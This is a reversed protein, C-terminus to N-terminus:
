SSWKTQIKNKLQDIRKLAFKESVNFTHQIYKYDIFPDTIMFDPVALEYMLTNAQGECYKRFSENIHTHGHRLVHSLEHFFTETMVEKNKTQLMIIDVDNSSVRVDLPFDYLLSINFRDAVNNINLDEITNIGHQNYIEKVGM